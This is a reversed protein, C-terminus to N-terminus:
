TAPPPPLAPAGDASAAPKGGARSAPPFKVPAPAVDRTIRSAIPADAPVSTVAPAAFPPGARQTDTSPPLSHVRAASPPGADSLWAAVPSSAPTACPRAPQTATPVVSAAAPPGRTTEEGSARAPVTVPPM